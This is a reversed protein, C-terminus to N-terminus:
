FQFWIEIYIILIGPINSPRTRERSNISGCTLLSVVGCSARGRPTSTTVTSTWHYPGASPAHCTTLTRTCGVNVSDPSPRELRIGFSLGVSTMRSMAVVSYGHERVRSTKDVVLKTVDDAHTNEDAVLHRVRKIRASSPSSRPESIEAPALGEWASACVPYPSRAQLKPAVCGEGLRTSICRPCTRDFLEKVKPRTSRGTCSM